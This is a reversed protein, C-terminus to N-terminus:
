ADVVRDRSQFLRAIEPFRHQRFLTDIEVLYELSPTATMRLRASPSPDRFQLSKAHQSGEDRKASEPHRRYKVVRLMVIFFRNRMRARKTAGVSRACVTRMVCFGVPRM